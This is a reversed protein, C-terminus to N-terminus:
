TVKLEETAQREDRGHNMEGSRAECRKGHAGNGSEEAQQESIRARSGQCGGNEDQSKGPGYV